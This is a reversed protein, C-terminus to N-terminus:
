PSLAAANDGAKVPHHGCQGSRRLRDQEAARLDVARKRQVQLARPRLARQDIVRDVEVCIAYPCVTRSTADVGIAERVDHRAELLCGEHGAIEHESDGVILRADHALACRAALGREDRDQVARRVIRRRSAGPVAHGKDAAVPM